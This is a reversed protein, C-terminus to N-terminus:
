NPAISGVYAAAAIMDDLSLTSVLPRMTLGASDARTGAAIAILQRLVYSPSRGAIPPAVSSGRLGEGHCSQCAPTAPPRGQTALLRGRHISGLPVYATYPVSPDHLEHREASSAVEVLRQGLLESGGEPALFYLGVAPRVRPIRRAEVVRARKRPTLGAFYRAAEAIESDTASVAVRRMAAMPSGRNSWPLDRTGARMAAVERMIYDAPLGALQANEPRGAGDPLHCFACALASPRRGHSVSPPMPPHAEPFWDAVDFADLAHAATFSQHSGPVHRKTTNDPPASPSFALPYAWSPATGTTVPTSVAATPRTTQARLPAAAFIGILLCEYRVHRTRRRDFM